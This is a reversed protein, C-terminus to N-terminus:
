ADKIDETLYRHVTTKGLCLKDAIDRETLGEAALRRAENTLQERYHYAHDYYPMLHARESGHELFTFKPFNHPKELRCVIVNSADDQSSSNRLKIHKIYRIDHGRHSKGIAIMSDAFNALTKNGALDNDTMPRAYPRNPTHAIVMISIGLDQKLGKLGKMLTLAAGAHTNATALWSINDVILVKAKHKDVAEDISHAMFAGYSEFADPVERDWGIQARMNRQSFKYKDVCLGNEHRSYRENFQSETLEFDLYLVRKPTIADSLVVGDSSADAVARENLVAPAATHTPLAALVGVGRAISEALQVAFISKGCGTDAFLIALEGEKWMEGFLPASVKVARDKMWGNAPRVELINTYETILKEGKKRHKDRLAKFEDKPQWGATGHYRDADYHNPIIADGYRDIDYDPDDLDEDIENELEDTM